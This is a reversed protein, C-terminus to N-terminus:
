SLGDSAAYRQWVGRTSHYLTQYFLNYGNRGHVVLIATWVTSAGFPAPGNQWTGAISYFGPVNITNFDGESLGAGAGLQALPLGVM